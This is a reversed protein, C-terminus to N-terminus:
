MLVEKVAIVQEYGCVPCINLHMCYNNELDIYGNSLKNAEIEMYPSYPGYFEELKGQDILQNQCNPCLANIRRIGNCIPCISEM